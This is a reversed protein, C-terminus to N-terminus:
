PSTPPATKLHSPGTFNDYAHLTCQSRTDQDLLCDLKVVLPQMPLLYVALSGPVLLLGLDTEHGSLTTPLLWSLPKLHDFKAEKITNGTRRLGIPIVKM